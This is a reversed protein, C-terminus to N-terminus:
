TSSRRRFMSGGRFSVVPIYGELRESGENIPSGDVVVWTHGLVSQDERRMAVILEPDADAKGLYRYAVLSRELCNERAPVFRSDYIWNTLATVRDRSPSASTSRPSADMLQVLRPLPLAWKLVPLAIAWGLM